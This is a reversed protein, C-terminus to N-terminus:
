NQEAQGKRGNEGPASFTGPMWTEHRLRLLGSPGTCACQTSFFGSRNDVFEIRRRAGFSVVVIPQSPDLTSKDDSYLRTNVDGNKYFSVLASNLSCNFDRNIKTPVNKISSFGNLDLPDNIVPGYSSNWAYSEKGFSLFRNQVTDNSKKVRFHLGECEAMKLEQETPDLFNAQYTM